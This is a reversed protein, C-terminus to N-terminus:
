AGSGAADTGGALSGAPQMLRPLRGPADMGGRMVLRRLPAVNALLHLGIGRLTQVPLVDMLLSRNLLDVSVTRGLVDAARAAQYAELLAPSGIDEGRACAAGVCDALAAADRLGLNLGQAGIPPIVHASEGVLAVRNQGMRLAALGALPYVARPGVDGIAGLLGQLRAALETLFAKEGLAALRAATAPEEVWVLSSADGPLPVTTLPGARRHLETTIGSHPRTHRFTAAIATQAYSWARTAIGAATRAISARGDAAVALVAELAGGEAVKITVHRDGPEVAVVASTPRWSLGGAARARAYLAANLPANAVNAGFCPLGLESARFLVEPARWLGGRDDVIRVGELLASHERVHEWVGLNKLLEISGPLLATTRRDADAHATDFAPAAIAVEVGCANLALAATLGAPGAGIVAAQTEPGDGM